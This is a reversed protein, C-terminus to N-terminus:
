DVLSSFEASRKLWAAAYGCIPTIRLGHAQAYRAIATMLRGAAGTGRLEPPSYVYDLILGHEERRYDAWVVAGQMELEFRSELIKLDEM